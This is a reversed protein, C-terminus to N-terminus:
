AKMVRLDIISGSITMVKAEYQHGDQLCRVLDGLQRAGTITGAQKRSDQVFAAVSVTQNQTLLEIDLVDGVVLSDVVNPVPGFLSTQFNLDCRDRGGRAGGSGSKDFPESSGSGGM